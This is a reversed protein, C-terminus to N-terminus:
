KQQFTLPNNDHDRSLIWANKSPCHNIVEKNKLNRKEQSLPSELM